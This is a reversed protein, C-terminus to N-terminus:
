QRSVILRGIEIIQAQTLSPKGNHLVASVTIAGSGKKAYLVYQVPGPPGVFAADGIDTVTHAIMAKMKAANDYAVAATVNVEVMMQGDPGAFNLDAFAYQNEGRKVSKVGKVGSIKEVDAASLLKDTATQARVAAGLSVAAAAALM